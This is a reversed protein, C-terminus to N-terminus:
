GSPKLGLTWPGEDAARGWSRRALRLWPAAKNNRSYSRTRDRSSMIRSLSVASLTADPIRMEEGNSHHRSLALKKLHKSAMGYRVQHKCSKANRAGKKDEARTVDATAQSRGVWLPNKG